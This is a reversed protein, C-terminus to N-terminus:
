GAGPRRAPSDSGPHAASLHAGVGLAGPSPLGCKWGMVPKGQLAMQAAVAQQWSFAQELSNPVQALAEGVRNLLRRQTLEEIMIQEPCQNLHQM